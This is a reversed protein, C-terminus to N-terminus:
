QVKSIERKTLKLLTRTKDENPDGWLIKTTEGVNGSNWLTTHAHRAWTILESRTAGFPKANELNIEQFERAKTALDNARGNGRVGHHGRVWIIRIKGHESYSNVANKCDLVTKSKVTKTTIANIAM